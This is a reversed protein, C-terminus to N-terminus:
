YLAEISRFWCRAAPKAIFAFAANWAARLMGLRGIYTQRLPLLM